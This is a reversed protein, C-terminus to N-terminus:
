GLHALAHRFAPPLNDGFRVRGDAQTFIGMNALWTEFEPAPKLGLTQRAYLADHFSTTQYNLMIDDSGPIGMIFNIGAVGLLTLLTDMDDQDAEAHNTYCIDCGMPVGLLKGCFHDELGARIIQKGNYLYEPGIFGVVTNVLFPNFHRAVAYARTECTQQDVGHHANASLASGQGTEFYMLNNGLTGRNLSLGADYGEKLINLSIGFSANAAETGAISQFVLDLPVGRNAAEISTTVHTLVCGQTPIDYRQIIADLMELMACISATSDTAPNIGIMADGNGYLLGDLISAAIGAPEDTPHNPQLRTSLRGRLGLTGRFKTVVRIKQAVLVLDQVRMIKSVAAVMEPTLGPALTRLSQEDAADSLLWDRFGGVTLHSVTAFAQKDHTDVILRTVEDAEYPILVEQLFHSLPLDALAMQAAVREGDNLAAIEALFDGSRAPSAKAMLDKLSDFRYTQAGVSHAFAAM